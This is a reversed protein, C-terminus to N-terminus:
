RIHGKARHDDLCAHEEGRKQREESLIGLVRIAFGPGDRLWDAPWAPVDPTEGQECHIEPATQEISPRM